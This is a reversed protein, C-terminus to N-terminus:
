IKSKESVPKLSILKVENTHINIDFIYRFRANSYINFVDIAIRKINNEVFREWVVNAASTNEPIKEDRNTLMYSSEYIVESNRLLIFSECEIYITLNEIEENFGKILTAQNEIKDITLKDSFQCYVSPFKVSLIEANERNFNDLFIYIFTISDKRHIVKFSEVCDRHVTYFDNQCNNHKIIANIKM